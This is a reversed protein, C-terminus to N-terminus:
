TVRRSADRISAGGMARAWEPREDDDDGARTMPSWGLERVCDLFRASLRALADADECSDIARALRQTLAVLAADGNDNISLRVGAEATLTTLGTVLEM